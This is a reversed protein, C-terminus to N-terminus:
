NLIFPGNIAPRTQSFTCKCWKYKRISLVIIGMWWVDVIHIGCGCVYQHRNSTAIIVCDIAMTQMRATSKFSVHPYHIFLYIYKNYFIRLRTIPRTMHARQAPHTQANKIKRENAFCNDIRLANLEYACLYKFSSLLINQLYRQKGLETKFLFYIM